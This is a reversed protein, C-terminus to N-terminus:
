IRSSVELILWVFKFRAVGNSEGGKPVDSRRRSNTSKRPFLELYQNLIRTLRDRLATTELLFVKMKIDKRSSKSMIKYIKKALDRSGHIKQVTRAGTPLISGM